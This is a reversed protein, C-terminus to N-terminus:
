SLIDSIPTKRCIMMLLNGPIKSDAGSIQRVRQYQGKRKALTKRKLM